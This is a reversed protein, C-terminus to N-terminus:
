STVNVSAQSASITFAGQAAGGVPYTRAVAVVGQTLIYPTRNKDPKFRFILSQGALNVLADTVGDGLSHTFSAQGISSSVSAESQDDYYSETSVSKTTEAPVYDRVRPLTAYVPTAYRAYVLKGATAASTATSGHILPIASSFTVKGTLPNTQWVPNDYREQHTGPAAYIETSLVVAATVSTTRIQAVEVSGLPISPPGGAAGRTDSFATNDTGTVIAVTGSSNVTVSNIMHTDTTIGRTITLSDDVVAAVTLVGTTADAGTAGPMMLTMAATRVSDNASGPTVEGGTMLGYPAVVYPEQGATIVKSSWPSSAATFVIRSGDATLTAFAVPTQASEYALEQNQLAAM